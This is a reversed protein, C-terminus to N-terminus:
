FNLGRMVQDFSGAGGKNVRFVDHLHKPGDMNLGVLFSNQKFFACWKDDLLAGNIQITYQITQGRRKLQNVLAVSRKFFDLGMLTPESGRWAVDVQPARHSELLQKPYITLLDEAMQFRSGPYLMEKSLFFGTSATSTVSQV